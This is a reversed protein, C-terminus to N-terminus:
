YDIFNENKREKKELFYNKSIEQSGIKKQKSLIRPCDWFTFFVFILKEKICKEWRYKM